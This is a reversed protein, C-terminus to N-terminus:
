FQASSGPHSLYFDNNNNQVKPLKKPWARQGVWRKVQFMDSFIVWLKLCCYQNKGIAGPNM